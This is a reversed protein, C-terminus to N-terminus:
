CSVNTLIMDEREKTEKTRGRTMPNVLMDKREENMNGKKEEKMNKKNKRKEDEKREDVKMTLIKRLM